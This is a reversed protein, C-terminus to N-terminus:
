ILNIHKEFERPSRNGLASHLRERNYFTEIYDFIASPARACSEFRTRHVLDQKLTSWFSEMAANDYCNGWRSMSPTLKWAALRECYAESAYQSGRDSHHLLGIKPQRQRLAMQLADMPLRTELSEGMAWGVLRRSGLDLVGALYLWGEDTPVYTIDAAWVENPREVAVARQGLHNPAIPQEHDSDTMWPRHRGRLRGSLGRGRMLRAVRHRGCAHGARRLARHLRPSGYTHRSRAFLTGIEEGLTADARDRESPGRERWSYFGARSVDFAECLDVTPYADEMAEIVAFRERKPRCFDRRSKKFIDRQNTVSQLQARLRRVEAQLEQTGPAVAPLKGEAVTASQAPTGTFQRRWTRLSETTIGLSKTVWRAPVGSQWQAVAARKFAEDYPRHTAGTRTKDAESSM